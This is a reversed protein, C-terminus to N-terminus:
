EYRLADAPNTRAARVAQTGTAVAAVALAVVGAALLPGPGVDIRYAFDQLWRQGAWYALPAALVLGLVALRGTDQM